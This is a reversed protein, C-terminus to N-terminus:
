LGRLCQDRNYTFKFPILVDGRRKRSDMTAHNQASARLDPVGHSESERASDYSAALLLTPFASSFAFHRSNLSQHHPQHEIPSKVPHRNRLIFYQVGFLYPTKAGAGDGVRAATGPKQGSAAAGEAASDHGGEGVKGQVRPAKTVGTVQPLWSAASGQQV